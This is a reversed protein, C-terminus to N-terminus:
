NALLVLGNAAQVLRVPDGPPPEPAATPPEGNSAMAPGAAGYRAQAAKVRRVYERTERYNPIGGARRVAEAGANYAALALEDSGFRDRLMRLHKAGAHVNQWPDFADRVGHERATAPMLQMLGQAGKRSVARADFGSEVLAVATLLSVPLGQAAAAEELYKGYATPPDVVRLPVRFKPPLEDIFPSSDTDPTNSFVVRDGEVDYYITDGLVPAAAVLLAVSAGVVIGTGRV